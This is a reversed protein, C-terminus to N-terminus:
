RRCFTDCGGSFHNKPEKCWLVNFNNDLGVLHDGAIVVYGWSTKAIKEISGKLSSQNVEIAKQNEIYGEDGIETLWVWISDPYHYYETWIATLGGDSATADPYNSVGGADPIGHWYHRHFLYTSQASANATVAIAVVILAASVFLKGSM